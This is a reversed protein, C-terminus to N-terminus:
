YNYQHIPTTQLMDPAQMKEQLGAGLLASRISAALIGGMVVPVANGIQRMSETRSSGFVYTDPFTQLRASERVTFYRVTEDELCLTNEGGPVGHDGAKLTKAPEDINSGTHGKYSRAGPIGVHNMIHPHPLDDRPIELGQLADRVTRWRLGSPSILLRELRNIYPRIKEPISPREILGHERWYTGDVWQAYLLAQKSHNERPWQWRIMYDHRFGVIFVRYRHQPVGYDVCNILKYYVDYALDVYKGSDRMDQLRAKHETWSEKPMLQLTPYQLQLIIYEFYPKFNERLLGRVNEILIAPPALERIARVVQPFMNRTDEDGKHKGGISFPQCPPGGALLDVRGVYPKFDFEEVPMEFVPWADVSIGSNARLTHCAHADREILAVHRFGARELGLALGGAGTFLELSDM